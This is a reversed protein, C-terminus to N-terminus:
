RAARCVWSRCPASRARTSRGSTRTSRPVAPRGDRSRGLSGAPLAAAGGQARRRDGSPVHAGRRDRQPERGPAHRDGRVQPHGQRTVREDADAALAARDARAARLPIRHRDAGAAVQAPEHRLLRLRSGDAQLPLPRVRARRRRDHRHGERARRGCIQRVPFIQGTLNTIHCFHLVKTRPTIPRSCRSRRARGADEASRPVLDEDGQHRRPAGASGVHRADARLGPEHDRGRRRAQSRHRAACDAAGREREAHDGDGGSRLGFEAALNRRVAEINPELVQWM